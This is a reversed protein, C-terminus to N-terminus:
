AQTFSGSCRALIKYIRNGARDQTDVCSLGFSSSKRTQMENMINRISDIQVLQYYELGIELTGLIEALTAQLGPLTDKRFHWLAQKRFNKLSVRMGSSEVDAQLNRLERDLKVIAAKSVNVNKELQARIAKAKTDSHSAPSEIYERILQLIAKLRELSSVFSEIENSYSRFSKLYHVFGQAIQIGLSIASLPDAM